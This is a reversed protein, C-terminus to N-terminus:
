LSCTCGLKEGAQASCAPAAARSPQVSSHERSAATGPSGPVPVPSRSAAGRCLVLARSGTIGWPETGLPSVPYSLFPLLCSLQPQRHRHTLGDNPEGLGKEAKHCPITDYEHCISTPKWAPFRSFHHQREMLTKPTLQYFCQLTLNLAAHHTCPSCCEQLVPLSQRQSLWAQKGFLLSLLVNKLLRLNLLPPKQPTPAVLLSRHKCPWTSTIFHGNSATHSILSPAALNSGWPRRRM